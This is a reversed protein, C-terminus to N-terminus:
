NTDQQVTVVQRSKRWSVLADNELKTSSTTLVNSTQQTTTNSITGPSAILVSTSIPRGKSRWKKFDRKDWQVPDDVLDKRADEYLFNNYLLVDNVLYLKIDTLNADVIIGSHKHKM